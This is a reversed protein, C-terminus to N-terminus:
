TPLIPEVSSGSARFLHIGGRLITDTEVGADTSYPSGRPKPPSDFKKFRVRLCLVYDM